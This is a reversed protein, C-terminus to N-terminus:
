EHRCKSRRYRIRDRHNLEIKGLAGRSDHSGPTLESALHGTGDTASSREPSPERRKGRHSPLSRIFPLIAAATAPAAGPSLSITSRRLHVPPSSLLVPTLGRSSSPEPSTGNWREQPPNLTGQRARRQGCRTGKLSHRFHVLPARMASSTKRTFLIVLFMRSRSLDEAVSNADQSACAKEIVATGSPPRASADSANETPRDSAARM